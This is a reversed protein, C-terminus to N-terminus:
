MSTFYGARYATSNIPIQMTQPSIENVFNLKEWRFLIVSSCNKSAAVLLLRHTSSLVSRYNKNRCAFSVDFNIRCQDLIDLMM